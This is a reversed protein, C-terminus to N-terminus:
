IRGLQRDLSWTDWEIPLLLLSVLLVARFFVQQLDWIPELLGHGFAVILLVSALAYLVTDRVLGLILLVGGILEIYSTYYVVFKLLFVPLFSEEYVAFANNYVNSIGWTFVKGFGQMFFILGLLVRIIFLAISRNREISKAM